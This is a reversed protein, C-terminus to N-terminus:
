SASVKDPGCCDSCLARAWCFAIAAGLIALSLAGIIHFRLFFTANLWGHGILAVALLAFGLAWRKFGVLQPQSPNEGGAQSLGLGIIGMAGVAVALELGDVVTTLGLADTFPRSGVIAKLVLAATILTVALSRWSFGGNACDRLAPATSRLFYIAAVAVFWSSVTSLSAVAGGVPFGEPVGGFFGFVILAWLLMIAGSGRVSGIASAHSEVGRLCIAISAAPLTVYLVTNAYWQAVLSLGVGMIGSKYIWIQAIWFSALLSIFALLAFLHAVYRDDSQFRLLGAVAQYSALTFGVILGLNVAAPFNMLKLGPSGLNLIEIVGLLLFFNWLVIGFSSVNGPESGREKRDIFGIALLLNGGFGYVLTDFSIADLIGYTLSAKDSLFTGMHLKLSALVGAGMALFLWAFASFLTLKTSKSYNM